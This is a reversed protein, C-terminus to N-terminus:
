TSDTSGRWPRCPLPGLVPLLARRLGPRFTHTVIDGLQDVVVDRVSGRVCTVLKAQGPPVRVGHLGRLTGRRSVSYNVQRPAFPRGTVATLADTRVGEYFVGREDTLHHPELVVVGPVRGRTVRTVDAGRRLAGTRQASRAPVHHRARRRHVRGHVGRPHVPLVDGARHLCAARGPRRGHVARDDALARGERVSRSVRSVVLGDSEAVSGTVFGDLFQEPFWWPEAVVVGGPALARALSRAAAALEVTSAMYGMSFCMCLVADYETGLDFDRMDGRHVTSGPLRAAAIERMTGSLELGEAVPFHERLRRLHAGTGCAVDLVSRAGPRREFVLRAVADAEADWDRGRAAHIHDYIEAHRASYATGAGEDAHQADPAPVHDPTHETRPPSTTM